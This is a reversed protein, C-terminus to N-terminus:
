SVPRHWLPVKAKFNFRIRTRPTCMEDSVSLVIHLVMRCALFHRARARLRSQRASESPADIWLSSCLEASSNTIFFIFYVVELLYVVDVFLEVLFSLCKLSEPRRGCAVSIDLAQLNRRHCVSIEDRSREHQVKERSHFSSQNTFTTDSCRIWLVCHFRNKYHTSM